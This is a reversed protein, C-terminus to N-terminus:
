CPRYGGTRRCTSCQPTRAFGPIGQLVERLLRQRQSFLYKPIACSVLVQPLACIRSLKGCSDRAQRALKVAISREGISVTDTILSAWQWPKLKPNNQRVVRNAAVVVDDAGGVYNLRLNDLCTDEVNRFNFVPQLRCTFYKEAQLLDSPLPSALIMMVVNSCSVAAMAAYHPSRRLAFRSRSTKTSWLKALRNHEIWRELQAAPVNTGVDEWTANGVCLASWRTFGSDKKCCMKGCEQLLISFRNFKQLNRM